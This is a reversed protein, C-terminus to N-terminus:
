KVGYKVGYTQVSIVGRHFEILYSCNYFTFHRTQTFLRKVQICFYYFHFFCRSAKVRLQRLRAMGVLLSHKNGIYIAQNEKQGNYWKGSFVGPIFVRQLWSWYM